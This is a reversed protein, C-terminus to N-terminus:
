ESPMMDIAAFSTCYGMIAIILNVQALYIYCRKLLWISTCYYVGANPNIVISSFADVFFHSVMPKKSQLLIQYSMM